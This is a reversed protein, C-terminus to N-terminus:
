NICDICNNYVFQKLESDDNSEYYGVLTQKFAEDLEVPVALIGCGNEILIKNAVITAVRKNGDKFIQNRMVWFMLAIARETCDEISMLQVLEIYLKEVNPMEPRWSTGSILVEETRIRGRECYALDVRAVLSHINKIYNLDMEDDIHDLIYHWADRMCLIKIIENPKLSLVNINNLVDCTQAYTISIGELSASKHILDPLRRKAVEINQKKIMSFNNVM